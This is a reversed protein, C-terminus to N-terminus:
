DHYADHLDNALLENSLHRYNSMICSMHIVKFTDYPDELGASELRWLNGVNKRVCGDAVIWLGVLIFSKLINSQDRIAIIWSASSTKVETLSGDRELNRSIEPAWSGCHLRFSFIGSDEM